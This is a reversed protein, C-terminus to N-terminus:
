RFQTLKLRTPVNQMGARKLVETDPSRDQWKIKLPKRLCSIYFHTLRKANRQYVTETECPIITNVAGYIQLSEAKRADNSGVKNGFLEMNDALHQVLNLMGSM